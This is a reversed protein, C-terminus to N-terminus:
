WSGILAKPYELLSKSMVEKARKAMGHLSPMSDFRESLAELRKWFCSNFREDLLFEGFLLRWSCFFLLTILAFAMVLVLVIIPTGNRSGSCEAWLGTEMAWGPACHGCAPGERGEGCQNLTANVGGALM